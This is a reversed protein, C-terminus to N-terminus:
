FLLTILTIKTIRSKRDWCFNHEKTKGILHFSKGISTPIQTKIM